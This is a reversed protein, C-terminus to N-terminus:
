TLVDEGLEPFVKVVKATLYDGYTGSLKRLSTGDWRTRQDDTPVDGSLPIAAVEADWSPDYFFPLSIRDHNTANRVRHPTSRYRGQTMRDLMDGLNCIIIERDGPVDIWLDRNRVQLGGSEDQVLLTLLGYDTHTQVGWTKPPSPPYRFIRFLITPDNTLNSEFWKAELGLGLAVGRLVIAALETMTELWNLVLPKLESPTSPFQNKGHLPLGHQVRPDDVPLEAGFYIGEKQDPRGATLEGHLPFWGRWARGGQTMAIEAKVSEPLAFFTRAAAELALSRDSKVGHGTIGFFGFERCAADIAAGVAKAARTDVIGTSSSPGLASIDIVPLASTHM